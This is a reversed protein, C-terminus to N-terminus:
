GTRISRRGVFLVYNFAAMAAVVALVLLNSRLSEPDIRGIAGLAGALAPTYSVYRALVKLGVAVVVLVIAARLGLQVVRSREGVSQLEDALLLLQPIIAFQGAFFAIFLYRWAEHEVGLAEVAVVMATEALLLGAAAFVLPTVVRAAAVSRWTVPLALLRAARRERVEAVVTAFAVLLGATVLALPYFYALKFDDDPAPVAGLPPLIVNAALALGLLLITGKVAVGAAYRVNNTILWLM